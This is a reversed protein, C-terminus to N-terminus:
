VAAKASFAERTVELFQAAMDVHTRHLIPHNSPAYQKGFQAHIMEEITGIHYPLPYQIRDDLTYKGDEIFYDYVSCWESAITPVGLKATELYVYGPLENFAPHLYLGCNQFASVIMDRDLPNARPIQVVKLCGEEFPEYSHTYIVTPAKRYKIITRVLIDYYFDHLGFNDSAILVMPVDVNRAALVAALPNKRPELRGVYLLYDGKNFGCLKLFADSYEPVVGTAMGPSLMFHKANARPCERQVTEVETPSTTLVIKADRTVEFNNLLRTHPAFENLQLIEPMEVLKEMSYEPDDDLMKEAYEVIGGLARSMLVYDHYFPIMGYDRGILALTDRQPALNRAVNALFIYDADSIEEVQHSIVGEHGLEALGETVNQMLLRAGPWKHKEFHPSFFAVKTM